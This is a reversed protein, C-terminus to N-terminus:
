IRPPRKPPPIFIEPPLNDQGTLHLLFHSDGQDPFVLDVQLSTVTLSPSSQGVGDQSALSVVEDPLEKSAPGNGDPNVLLDHAHFHTHAAEYFHVHEASASGFFVHQHSPQREAFHHDLMPGFFPMFLASLAAVIFLQYLLV